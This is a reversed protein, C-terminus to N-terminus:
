CSVGFSPIHVNGNNRFYATNAKYEGVMRNTSNSEVKPGEIEGRDFRRIARKGDHTITLIRAGRSKEYEDTLYGKRELKYIEGTSTSSSVGSRERLEARNCEGDLLASLIKHQLPTIM